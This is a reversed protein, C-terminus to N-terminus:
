SDDLAGSEELYSDNDMVSSEYGDADMMDQMGREALAHQYDEWMDQAIQDCRGAATTGPEEQVELAMAVVNADPFNNHDQDQPADLVSVEGNHTRIFNHIACLAVSIRAQIDLNYEPAL